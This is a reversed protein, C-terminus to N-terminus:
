KFESTVDCRRQLQVDLSFDCRQPFPNVLQFALEPSIMLSWLISVGVSVASSGLAIAM